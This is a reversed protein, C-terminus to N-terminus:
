EGRLIREIEGDLGDPRWLYYEIGPCLTLADQWEDQGPLWRNGSKNWRGRTLRGKVTKLEAFIVRPPRVMRLDPEGPESKRADYTFGVIWGYTRALDIVTAQFDRETILAHSNM